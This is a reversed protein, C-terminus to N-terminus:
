KATKAKLEKYERALANLETLARDLPLALIQEEKTIDGKTLARIQANMVERLKAPRLGASMEEPSLSTSDNIPQYFDPYLRTFYQKLASIWNTIALDSASQWNKIHTLRTLLNLPNLIDSIKPRKTLIGIIQRMIKREAAKDGTQSTHLYGAWLNELALWQGFPLGQLLVHKARLGRALKDPRWPLKLPQLIWDLERLICAFEEPTLGILISSRKSLFIPRLNEIKKPIEILYHKDQAKGIIRIGTLMCLAATKIEARTRPIDLSLLRLIKHAQAQTLQEWRTPLTLNFNHQKYPDPRFSIVPPNKKM